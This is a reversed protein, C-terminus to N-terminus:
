ETACLQGFVIYFRAISHTIINNV